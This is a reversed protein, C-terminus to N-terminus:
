KIQSNHLDKEILKLIEEESLSPTSNMHISQYYALDDRMREKEEDSVNANEISELTLGEGIENELNTAREEKYSSSKISLDDKVVRKSPVLKTQASVKKTVSVSKEETVNKKVRDSTIIRKAPEEAKEGTYIYVSLVVFILAILGIVFKIM